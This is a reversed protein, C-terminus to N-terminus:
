KQMFFRMGGGAKLQLPVTHGGPVPFGSRLLEFTSSAFVQREWGFSACTERPTYLSFPLRGNGCGPGMNNMSPSILCFLLRVSEPKFEWTQSKGVYTVATKIPLAHSLSSSWLPYCPHSCFNINLLFLTCFLYFPM